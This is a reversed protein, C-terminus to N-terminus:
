SRGIFIGGFTSIPCSLQGDNQRCQRRLMCSKRCLMNRKAFFHSKQLFYHCKRWIDKIWLVKSHWLFNSSKMSIYRYTRCWIKSKQNHFWIIWKKEYILKPKSSKGHFDTLWDLFPEARVEIQEIEFRKEGVYFRSSEDGHNSWFTKFDSTSSARGTRTFAKSLAHKMWCFWLWHDFAVDRGCIDIGSFAKFTVFHFIKM